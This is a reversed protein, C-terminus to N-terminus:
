RPWRLGTPRHAKSGNWYPRSGNGTPGLLTRYLQEAAADLSAVIGSIADLNWAYGAAATAAAQAGSTYVRVEAVDGSRRYYDDFDAGLRTEPDTQDEGLTLYNEDEVIIRGDEDRKIDHTFFGVDRGEHDYVGGQVRIGQVTVVFRRIGTEPDRVVDWVALYKATLDARYRGYQRPGALVDRLLANDPEVVDLLLGPPPAAGLDPYDGRLGALDAPASDDKTPDDFRNLM